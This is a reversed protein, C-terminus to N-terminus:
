LAGVSGRVNRLNVALDLEQAIRKGRGRLVLRMEPDSGPPALAVDLHTYSFHALAGAIRRHIALDTVGNTLRERWAKDVLQLDGATRAALSGGLVDIDDSSVRLAVRGDLTGTVYRQDGLGIVSDLHLGTADVIAAGIMAAIAFM